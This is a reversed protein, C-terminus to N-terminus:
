DQGAHEDATRVNEPVYPLSDAKLIGVKPTSKRSVKMIALTLDYELNQLNQVVPIAEKKDEFLVAIGMFGNIVQAKDKEFTQM